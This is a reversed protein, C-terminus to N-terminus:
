LLIEREGCRDNDKAQLRNRTGSPPAIADATDRLLANKIAL